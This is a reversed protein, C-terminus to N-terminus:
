GVKNNRLQSSATQFEEKEKGRKPKNTQKTRQKNTHKAKITQKVKRDTRHKTM